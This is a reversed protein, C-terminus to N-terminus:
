FILTSLIALPAAVILCCMIILTYTLINM